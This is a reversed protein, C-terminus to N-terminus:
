CYVEVRPDPANPHLDLWRTMGAGILAVAQVAVALGLWFTRDLGYKAVEVDRRLDREKLDTTTPEPKAVTAQVPPVAAEAAAAVASELGFGFFIPLLLLLFMAACLGAVILQRQPWVPRIIDPITVQRGTLVRDAIALAATLILLIFFFLLWVNVGRHPNLAAEAGLVRDGLPDTSFGGGFAAQWGTQTCVRNGNPAVTLWPFFALLFVLVLAGPALWRVTTRRLTLHL